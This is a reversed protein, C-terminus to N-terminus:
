LNDISNRTIRQFHQTALDETWSTAPMGGFEGIRRGAFDFEAAAKGDEFVLNTLDARADFAIEYLDQLMQGIAADKKHGASQGLTNIRSDRM